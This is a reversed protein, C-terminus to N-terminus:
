VSKHKRTSQDNRPGRIFLTPQNVVFSLCSLITLTTETHGRSRDPAAGGPLECRLRALAPKPRLKTLSSLSMCADLIMNPIATAASAKEGAGACFALWFQTAAQLVECCPSESVFILSAVTRM